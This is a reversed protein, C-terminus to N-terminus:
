TEGKGLTRMVIEVIEREAEDLEDPDIGYGTYICGKLCHHLEERAM